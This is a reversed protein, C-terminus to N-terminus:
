DIFVKKRDIFCTVMSGYEGGVYAQTMNAKFCFCFDVPPRVIKLFSTTLGVPIRSLMAVCARM